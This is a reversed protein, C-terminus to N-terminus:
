RDGEIFNGITFFNYLGGDVNIIELDTKRIDGKHSITIQDVQDVPNEMVQPLPTWEDNFSSLPQSTMDSMEKLFSM